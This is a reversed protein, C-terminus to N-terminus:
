KQVGKIAVKSGPVLRSQGDVIVREGDTLGSAIVTLTDVTRAVQVPRQRATGATDITYVYTGQQGTLVAPSPLTLANPDVYLQLAVSMYQGPWMTGEPNSFRAKLLVTGTTSDVNNDVFALTGQLPVGSGESPTARVQLANGGRYYRQIDPFQSQAISFRVLIPQIQNIVVLPPTSNAKVLNGQRVLLSGTRGSIPARITTNAVDLAAKQINARDAAVTAAASAANAEAQDAQSGTVYGEKVLAAYRVADRQASVAMAQDRALQARAQDLVAVYPRSDIEFLVQGAQVPQGEAFTVRNLIGNVQSEVAVTQMPEAVGNATVVYPVSARKVTTVSVPVTPQRPPDKKSCAAIASLAVAAICASITRASM